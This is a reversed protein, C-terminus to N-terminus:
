FFSVAGNLLPVDAEDEGRQGALQTKFINSEVNSIFQSVNSQISGNTETECSISSRQVYFAAEDYFDGDYPVGVEKLIYRDDGLPNVRGNGKYFVDTKNFRAM